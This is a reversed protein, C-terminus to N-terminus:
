RGGTLGRMRLGTTLSVGGSDHRDGIDNKLAPAYDYGLQMFCGIRWFLHCTLGTGVHLAPGFHAQRDDREDSQYHSRAIALGVALEVFPVLYERLLPLRARAGLVATGTTWSFKHEDSEGSPGRELRSYSQRELVEGRALLSLNRLVGVGVTLQPWVIQDDGAEFGFKDLTDAYDDSYNNFRLLVGLEAFWREFRPGHGGLKAELSSLALAHCSRPDLPYTMRAQLRVDCLQARNEDDRLVVEYTAHPLALHLM